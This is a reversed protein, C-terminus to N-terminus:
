YNVNEGGLFFLFSPLTVLVMVHILRVKQFIHKYIMVFGFFYTCLKPDPLWVNIKTGTACVRYRRLWGACDGTGTRPMQAIRGPGQTQDLFEKKQTKKQEAKKREKKPKSDFSCM